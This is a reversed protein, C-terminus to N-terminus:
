VGSLKGASYCVVLEVGFPDDCCKAPKKLSACIQRFDDLNASARTPVVSEYHLEGSLGLACCQANNFARGPCIPEDRTKISTTTHNENIPIATISTSAIALLILNFRM